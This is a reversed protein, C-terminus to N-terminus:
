GLNGIYKGRMTFLPIKKKLATARTGRYRVLLVQGGVPDHDKKALKKIDRLRVYVRPNSMIVRRKDGSRFLIEGAQCGRAQCGSVDMPQDSGESPIDFVGSAGYLGFSAM